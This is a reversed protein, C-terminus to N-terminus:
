RDVGMARKPAACKKITPWDVAFKRRVEGKPLHFRRPHAVKRVNRVSREDSKSISLRENFDACQSTDQYHISGCESRESFKWRIENPRPLFKLNAVDCNRSVPRKSRKRMSNRLKFNATALLVTQGVKLALKM